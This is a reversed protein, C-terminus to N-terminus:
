RKVGLIVGLYRCFHVRGIKLFLRIFWTGIDISFFNDLDLWAVCCGRCLGGWLVPYGGSKNEIRVEMKSVEHYVIVFVVMLKM